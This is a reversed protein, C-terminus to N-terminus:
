HTLFGSPASPLAAPDAPVTLSNHCTVNRISFSGCIGEVCENGSGIGTSRDFSGALSETGKPGAQSFTTFLITTGDSIACATGALLLRSDSTMFGNFSKCTGKKLPFLGVAEVEAAGWHACYNKAHTASTMLLTLVVALIAIRTKM